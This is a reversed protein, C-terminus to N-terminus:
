SNVMIEKRRMEVILSQRRIETVKELIKELCHRHDKAKNRIKIELRLTIFLSTLFCPSVLLLVLFLFFSPHGSAYVVLSEIWCESIKKDSDM